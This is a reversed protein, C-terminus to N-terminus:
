SSEGIEKILPTIKPVSPDSFRNIFSKGKLSLIEYREGVNEICQFCVITIYLAFKAYRIVKLM